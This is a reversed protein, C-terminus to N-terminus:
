YKNLVKVSIEEINNHENFEDIAGESDVTVKIFLIDPSSKVKGYVIRKTISGGPEINKRVMVVKEKHVPGSYGYRFQVKIKFNKKTHGNEAYTNQVKVDLELPENVYMNGTFSMITSGRQLFTTVKDVTVDSKVTNQYTNAPTIKKGVRKGSINPSFKQVELGFSPMILVLLLLIIKTM